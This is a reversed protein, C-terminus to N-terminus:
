WGGGGAGGRDDASSDSNNDMDIADLKDIKSLSSTSVNVGIKGEDVVMTGEDNGDDLTCTGIGLTWICACIGLDVAVAVLETCFDEETETILTFEDDCNLM